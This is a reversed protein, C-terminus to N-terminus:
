TGLVARSIFTLAMMLLEKPKPPWLALMAAFFNTPYFIFSLGVLEECVFKLPRATNIIREVTPKIKLMTQKATPAQGNATIKKNRGINKIM